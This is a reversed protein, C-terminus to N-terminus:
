DRRDPRTENKGPIYPSAAMKRAAKKSIAVNIHMNKPFKRRLQIKTIGHNGTIKKRSPAL